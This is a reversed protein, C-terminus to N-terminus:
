TMNEEESAPHVEMGRRWVGGALGGVCVLAAAAEWRWNMEVSGERGEISEGVIEGCAGEEVEVVGWGSERTSRVGEKREEM